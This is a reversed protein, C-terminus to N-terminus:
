ADDHRLYRVEQVTRNGLEFSKESGLTRHFGCAEYFKIGRHNECLVWLSTSRFGQSKLRAIAYTLLARGVGKGWQEPAVYLAWLEGQDQPSGEDRCHGFSVFGVLGDRTKAVVNSSEQALLINEWRAARSEISLDALWSRDLIHDYGTRWAHIHVRAISAADEPVAVTLNM